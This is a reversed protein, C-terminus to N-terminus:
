CPQWRPRVWALSPPEASSRSGPIAPRPVSGWGGAGEGQLPSPSVSEGSRATIRSSFPNGLPSRSGERSSRRSGRNGLAPPSLTVKGSQSWVPAHSHTSDQEGWFQPAVPAAPRRTLALGKILAYVVLFPSALFATLNHTLLLAAGLGALALATSPSPQGILRGLSWFLLPILAYALAQPYDGRHYLDLLHYPAALYLVGCLGAPLPALYSRAYLYASLGPLILCLWAIGKLAGAANLGLIQLGAALYYLAPSYFDFVPYGYGYFLTPALRPWIAAAALVERFELARYLHLLGDSSHLFSDGGLPWALALSALWILALGASRALSSDRTILLSHHRSPLANRLAQAPTM